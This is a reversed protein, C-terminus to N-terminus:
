IKYFSKRMYINYDNNLRINIRNINLKLNHIIQLILSLICQTLHTLIIAIIRYTTYIKLM